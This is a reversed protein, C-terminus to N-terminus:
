NQTKRQRDRSSNPSKLPEKVKGCFGKKANAIAIGEGEAESTYARARAVETGCEESLRDGPDGGGSQRM